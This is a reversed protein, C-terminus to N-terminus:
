AKDKLKATADFNEHYIETKLEAVVTVIGFQIIRVCDSFDCIKDKDIFPKKSM